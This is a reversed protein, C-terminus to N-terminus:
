GAGSTKVMLPWIQTAAPATALGAVDAPVAAVDAFAGTALKTLEMVPGTPLATGTRADCVVEAAAEVVDAIRTACTEPFAPALTCAPAATAPTTTSAANPKYSPHPSELNSIDSSLPM